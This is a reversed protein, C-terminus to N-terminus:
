NASQVSSFSFSLRTATWLYIALYVELSYANNLELPPTLQLVSPYLSVMFVNLRASLSFNSFTLVHYELVPKWYCNYPCFLSFLLIKIQFKIISYACSTIDQKWHYFIPCVSGALGEWNALHHSDIGLTLFCIFLMKGCLIPPVYSIHLSAICQQNTQKQKKTKTKQPHSIGSFLQSPERYNLM